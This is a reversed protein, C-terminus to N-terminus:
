GFHLFYDLSWMAQIGFSPARCIILVDQSNCRIISKLLMMHATCADSEADHQVPSSHLGGPANAAPSILILLPVKAINHSVDYVVHMDLDDAQQKFMKQFAQRVLFTMSSRNVWSYNAACSMAALYNKGEQVLNVIM